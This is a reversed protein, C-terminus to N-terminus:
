VSHRTKRHKPRTPFLSAIILMTTTLPLHTCLTRGSSPGMKVEANGTPRGYLGETDGVEEVLDCIMFDAIKGVWSRDVEFEKAM